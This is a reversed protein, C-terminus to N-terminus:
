FYTILPDPSSNPILYSNAYNPFNSAQHRAFTSSAESFHSYNASAASPQPSPFDAPYDAPQQQQSAGAQRTWPTDQTSTTVMQLLASRGLAEVNRAGMGARVDAAFLYGRSERFSESLNERRNRVWESARGSDIRVSGGRSYPHPTKSLVGVKGFSSQQVESNDPAIKM